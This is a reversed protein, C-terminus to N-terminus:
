LYSENQTHIPLVAEPKPENAQALVTLEPSLGTDKYFHQYDNYPYHLEEVWDGGWKWGHKIFINYCVDNKQILGLIPLSRDLFERAQVPGVIDGANKYNFFVYPNLLPNIDIALGFSHLSWLSGGIFKRSCFASSNNDACSRGDNGKYEEILKMKEVPYQAYFLDKFIDLVENAVEHHVILKGDTHVCRDFGWYTITLLVLDKIPVPNDDQWSVRNIYNFTKDSIDESSGYYILDNLRRACALPPLLTNKLDTTTIIHKNSNNETTYKKAAHIITDNGTYLGSHTIKGNLGFYVFDGPEINEKPISMTKINDQTQKELTTAISHGALLAVLKLLEPSNYGNTHKNGYIYPINSFNKIRNIIDPMQLPEIPELANSLIWGETGDALHILTFLAPQHENTESRKVYSNCPLIMIPETKADPYPYVLTYHSKIRMLDTSVRWSLDDSFVGGEIPSINKQILDKAKMFGMPKEDIMVKVWENDHERIVTVNHGHPIHCFFSSETEDPRYYVYGRAVSVIRIDKVFLASDQIEACYVTQFTISLLGFLISLLNKM